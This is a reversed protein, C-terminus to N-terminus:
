LLFFDLARSLATYKASGHDEDILATFQLKGSHPQANLMAVLDKAPQLMKRLALIAMIEPSRQEKKDEATGATILLNKELQYGKSISHLIAQQQWWISPSAAIYTDFSDPRSFLAHLAFLGGYSHGFIGQKTPNIPQLAGIIPKLETELFDLFLEAGGAGAPTTTGTALTYDLTRAAFMDRGTAVYGIGVIIASQYGTIKTRRQKNRNIQMATSFTSDGDLLYLVPFGSAPPQSTPVDIYIRYQQCTHVSTILRQRAGDLIVDGWHQQALTHMSIFLGLFSLTVALLKATPPKLRTM